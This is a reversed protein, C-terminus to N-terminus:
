SRHEYGRQVYGRVDKWDKRTTDRGQEWEAKLENELTDNWAAHTTGYQQRAGYGYAMPTEVEEWPIPETGRIQKVTDSADQNLDKGGLHLDSKTQEWDRHLAEKVREWASEHQDKTWWKPHWIARGM